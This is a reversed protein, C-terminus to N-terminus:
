SSEAICSVCATIQMCSCARRRVTCSCSTTFRIYRNCARPRAVRMCGTIDTAAADVDTEAEPFNGYTRFDQLIPTRM